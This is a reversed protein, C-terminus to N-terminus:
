KGQPHKTAYSHLWNQFDAMSRSIFNSGDTKQSGAWAKATNVKTNYGVAKKVVDIADNYIGKVNAEFASNAATGPTQANVQNAQATKLNTEAEINRLQAALQMASSVVGQVPSKAHSGSVSSAQAGSPSSAGGQSALLMPNLGAKKMDSVARQYATSSMREQFNRNAAAEASAWRMQKGSMDSSQKNEYIKGGIDLASNAAMASAFM